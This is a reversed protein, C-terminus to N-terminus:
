RFPFRQLPEIRLQPDEDPRGELEGTSMEAPPGLSASGPGFTDLGDAEVFFFSRKRNRLVPVKLYRLEKRLMESRELNSLSSGSASSSSPNLSAIRFQVTTDNPTFYFEGVSEEGSKADTFMVRVYRGQRLELRLDDGRRVSVTQLARVLREMEDQWVDLLGKTTASTTTTESYDWPEAFVGPTDDQSSVCAANRGLFKNKNNHPCDALLGDWVGLCSATNCNEDKGVTEAAMAATNTSITTSLVLMSSQLVGACWQRRTSTNTPSSSYLSSDLMPASSACAQPHNDFSFPLTRKAKGRANWGLVLVNSNNDLILALALLLMMMTLQRALRISVSVGGAHISIGLRGIRSIVVMTEMLHWDLVKAIKWPSTCRRYVGLVWSRLHHLFFFLLRVFSTTNSHIKEFMFDKPHSHRNIKTRQLSHTQSKLFYIKEAVAHAVMVFGQGTHKTNKPLVLVM